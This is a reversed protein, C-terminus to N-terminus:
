ANVNPLKYFDYRSLKYKQEVEEIIEEHKDGLVNMQNSLEQARPPCEELERCYLDDLKEIEMEIDNYRKICNELSM